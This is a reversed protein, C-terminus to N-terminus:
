YNNVGSYRKLTREIKGEGDASGTIGKIRNRITKNNDNIM